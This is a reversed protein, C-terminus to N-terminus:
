RVHFDLMVRGELSAVLHDGQKVPGVGAPTGTFILDGTKLTIFNSVYAIIEGFSFIMDKTNGKQVTKDNIDLQFAIANRDPLADVPVFTNIVASQDFAKAIEWPHGAKKCVDQLDRATFDIGLGVTQYYRSAFQKQINKGLRSIKLVVETEYHIESSFEPYFFPKNKLLLASDPKMFFVPKQPLPNNLERAHESYNRGICIIKM